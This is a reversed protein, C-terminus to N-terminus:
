ESKKAHHRAPILKSLRETLEASTFPKVIYDHAGTKLINAKTEENHYATIALIKTDKLRNDSSILECVKFGDLGPLRIDLIILDPLKDALLKGAKFGDEAEWISLDSYKAALVAKLFERIEDDDDIVLVGFNKEKLGKPVPLNFNKIFELFKEVKIRRHGGPTKYGTLKGSDVWNIVTTIDVECLQSIEFTTLIEKM